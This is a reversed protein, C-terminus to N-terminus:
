NRLILRAEAAIKQTISLCKAEESPWNIINAHRSPLEDPMIALKEREVIRAKVDAVGYLNRQEAMNDVIDQGIEWIEDQELGDIRYVSLQMNTPPFFANPKVENRM